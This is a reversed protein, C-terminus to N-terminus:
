PTPTYEQYNKVDRIWTVGAAEFPGSGTGRVFVTVTFFDFNIVINNRILWVRAFDQSIFSPAVKPAIVLFKITQTGSATARFSFRVADDTLFFPTIPTTGSTTNSVNFSGPVFLFGAPLIDDLVVRTGSQVNNVKLTVLIQKLPSYPSAASSGPAMTKTLLGTVLISSINQGIYGGNQPHDRPDVFYKGIDAEHIVPNKPGVCNNTVNTSTKIQTAIAQPLVSAAVIVAMLALTIILTKINTRM